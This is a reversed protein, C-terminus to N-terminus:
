RSSTWLGLRELLPAIFTEDVTMGLRIAPKNTGHYDSGASKLLGTEYAICTFEVNERPLNAQYLCELGDLGAERLRHLEKAAMAYEIGLTRWADCWYKPHAMVAIGGAGHIVAFAEEQSPHWREEYARTEHPSDPLLYTAFAEKATAAYGHDVLWNAFHPRALVEGHAYGAIEAPPIHIGLRDFNELIRTNRANRGALIRKLFARLAANGPDIGLGLLHFRDFGWGPEISLEIGACRPLATNLTHRTADLQELPPNDAPDYRYALFEQAGDCNDHDTIAMAAFGRVMARRALERPALTGDSATSHVHFDVKM